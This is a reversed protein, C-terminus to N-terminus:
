KCNLRALARYMLRHASENLASANAQLELMMMEDLDEATKGTLCRSLAIMRKELRADLMPSVLLGDIVGMVYHARADSDAELYAQGNVFGRTILVGQETALVPLSLSILLLFLTKKM